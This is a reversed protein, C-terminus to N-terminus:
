NKNIILPMYSIFYPHPKANFFVIVIQVKIVENEYSLLPETNWTLVNTKLIFIIEMLNIYHFVGRGEVYIGSLRVSLYSYISNSHLELDTVCLM